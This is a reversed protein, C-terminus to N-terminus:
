AENLCHMVHKLIRVGIQNGLGKNFIASKTHAMKQSVVSNELTLRTLSADIVALALATVAIFFAGFNTSSSRIHHNISACSKGLTSKLQLRGRIQPM